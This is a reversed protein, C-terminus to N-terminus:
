ARVVDDVAFDLRFMKHEFSSAGLSTRAVSACSVVQVTILTMSFM